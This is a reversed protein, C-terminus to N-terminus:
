KASVEYTQLDALCLEGKPQQQPASVLQKSGVVSMEHHVQRPKEHQIVIPLRHDDEELDETLDDYNELKFSGSEAVNKQQHPRAFHNLPSSTAIQVYHKQEVMM